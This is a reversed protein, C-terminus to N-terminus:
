HIKFVWVCIEAKWIFRRSATCSIPKCPFGIKFYTVKARHKCRFSCCATCSCIFRVFAFFLNRTYTLYLFPLATGSSAQLPGSPELFNLNGSKMFVAFSPPLTTLRVYRGGKGGPFVGPEWKYKLSLRGWPLLAVPLIIDSSFELLVM